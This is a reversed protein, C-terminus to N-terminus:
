ATGPAVRPPHLHVRVTGVYRPQDALPLWGGGSASAVSTVVVDQPGVPVRPWEELAGLVVYLMRRLAAKGPSGDLDGLVEVQVLSSILHRLTRDDGGPLDTLLVRPYPPRNTGGVRGAGGLAATVDAHANLYPLAAGIPDADVLPTVM